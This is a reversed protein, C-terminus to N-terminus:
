FFLSFKVKLIQVISFLMSLSFCELKSPRLILKVAKDEAFYQFFNNLHIQINQYQFNQQFGNGLPLPDVMFLVSSPLM